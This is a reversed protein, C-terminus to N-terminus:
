EHMLFDFHLHVLLHGLLALMLYSVLLGAQLVVFVETASLQGNPPISGLVAAADLVAAVVM